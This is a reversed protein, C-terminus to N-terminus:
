KYYKSKIREVTRDIKDEVTKRIEFDALFFQFCLVALDALEEKEQKSLIEQQPFVRSLKLEEYEEDIKSLQNCVGFHNFIMLLKDCYKKTM